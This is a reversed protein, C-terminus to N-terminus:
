EYIVVLKANTATVITLGNNFPCEFNITGLVKAADIAAIITGAASTNDYITITGANDLNNIRLLRGAGYKCVTTTNTGIYKYISESDLKGLRVISAFFVVFINNTTNGNSNINEMCSPLDYRDIVGTSTNLVKHLLIGNVFFSIAGSTQFITLRYLTNTTPNFTAGYDGNFSGSSIATDVTSKRTVVQMTAGNIQFFYGDNTDYVGIRRINDADPDTTLAAISRFENTTGTIKRGKRISCYKATSNATAGTSLVVKGSQTISGSGTVTETWFNPDKTSGEFITGVLRTTEFIKLSSLPGISFISKIKDDYLRIGEVGSETFPTVKLQKNSNVSIGSELEELSCKFNGGNTAGFNIFNGSPNKGTLVSKVLEADDQSSITDAIRHSSPKVYYPKLIAQLRFYTQDDGGNTYIIKFYKTAAQFSFTKGTNAPITFEDQSDTNIGDSSFCVCLGDDVSAHSAKVTITIIGFNTIEEWEGTFAAGASLITSTSNDTSVHGPSISVVGNNGNTQIIDAMNSGDTIGVKLLVKASDYVKRIIQKVSPNFESM